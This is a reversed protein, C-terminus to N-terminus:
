EIINALDLWRASWPGDFRSGGGVFGGKTEFLSDRHPAKPPISFGGALRADRDLPRGLTLGAGFNFTVAWCPANDFGSSGRLGARFYFVLSGRHGVRFPFM